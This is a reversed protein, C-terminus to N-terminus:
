RRDLTPANDVGQLVDHLQDALQDVQMQLVDIPSALFAPDDWIRERLRAIELRLEHVRLDFPAITDTKRRGVAVAAQLNWQALRVAARAAARPAAFGYGHPRSRTEGLEERLVDARARLSRMDTETLQGPSIANLKEAKQLRTEALQLRLEAYRAHLDAHRWGADERAEAPPQAPVDDMVLLATMSSVGVAVVVHRIVLPSEEFSVPTAAM